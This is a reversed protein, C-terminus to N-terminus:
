NKQSPKRTSTTASSISERRHHKRNLTLPVLTSLARTRHRYSRCSSNASCTKAARAKSTAHPLICFPGSTAAGAAELDASIGFFPQRDTSLPRALTSLRTYPQSTPPPELGCGAGRRSDSQWTRGSRCRLPRGLPEYSWNVACRLAQRVSVLLSPPQPSLPKAEGPAHRLPGRASGHARWSCRPPASCSGRSTSVRTRAFFGALSRSTGLILSPSFLDAFIRPAM